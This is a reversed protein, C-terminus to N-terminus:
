KLTEESWHIDYFPPDGEQVGTIKGAWGGLSIDPFDPDTIGSRVRVSDGLAFRASTKKFQSMNVKRGNM